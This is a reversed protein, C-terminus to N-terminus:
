MLSPDELLPSDTVTKNDNSGPIIIRSCLIASIISFICGTAIVPGLLPTLRGVINMVGYAVEQGLVCFSNLAGMYLALKEPAVSLSLITFPISCFTTFSLGLPIFLAMAIWKNKIFFIPFLCCATVIQSIAYTWANGIKKVIADQFPSYCLVVFNQCAMILMGFCVGEHYLQSSPDTEGYIDQAIYPTIKINTPQFGMWSFFYVIAIRSAPKPMTTLAIYLEKFPNEREINETFQEEKGCICTLISSITIFIVGLLFILEYGQFHKTYQAINLGGILNTILAGLGFIWSAFNNAIALQSDPVLDGIIARTPGQICNIAVYLIFFAICFLPIGLKKPNSPYIFASIAEVKFIIVFSLLSFFTGAIIYPRRRGLKAHCGDSFYGILPQFFFATLPGVLWLYDSQTNTFGLNKMIPEGLSQIVTYCTQCALLGFCIGLIHLISLRERNKLPVWDSGRSNSGMNNAIDIYTNQDEM